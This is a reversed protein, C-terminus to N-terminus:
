YYGATVVEGVAAGCGSQCRGVGLRNLPGVGVSEVPAGVYYSVKIGTGKGEGKGM